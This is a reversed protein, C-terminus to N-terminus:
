RENEKGERTAHTLTYERNQVDTVADLAARLEWALRYGTKDVIDQPIIKAYAQMVLPGLADVARNLDAIHQKMVAVENRLGDREATTEALSAILRGIEQQNAEIIEGARFLSAQLDEVAEETLELEAKAADREATMAALSAALKDEIPRTNWTDPSLPELSECFMNNCFVYGVPTISEEMSPSQGCFPCPKLEEIIENENM